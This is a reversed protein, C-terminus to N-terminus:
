HLCIFGAAKAAAYWIGLGATSKFAELLPAPPCAHQLLDDRKVNPSPGAEAHVQLSLVKQEWEQQITVACPLIIHYATAGAKGICNVAVLGEICTM